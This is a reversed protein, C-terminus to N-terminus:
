LSFCFHAADDDTSAMLMGESVNGLHTQSESFLCRKSRHHFDVWGPSRITNGSNKDQQPHDTLSKVFLLLHLSTGLGKALFLGETECQHRAVFWIRRGATATSGRSQGEARQLAGPSCPALPFPLLKRLSTSAKPLAGKKGM